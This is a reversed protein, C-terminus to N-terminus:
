PLAAIKQVAPKPQQVEPIVVQKPAAIVESAKKTEPAKTSHAKM